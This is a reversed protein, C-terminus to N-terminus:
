GLPRIPGNARFAPCRPCPARRRLRTLSAPGASTPSILPSTFQTSGRRIHARREGAGFQARAKLLVRPSRIAESWAALGFAAATRRAGAVSAGARRLAAQKRGALLPKRAGPM